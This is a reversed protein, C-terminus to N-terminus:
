MLRASRPFLVREFGEGVVYNSEAQMLSARFGPTSANALNHSNVSQQLMIERMGRASIYALQDM